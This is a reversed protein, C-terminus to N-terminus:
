QSFRKANGSALNQYAAALLKSAEHCANKNEKLFYKKLGWLACLFFVAMGFIIPHQLVAVTVLGKFFVPLMYTLVGAIHNVWWHFSWAAHLQQAGSEVPPWIWLWGASIVVFLTFELFVGYLWQRRSVWTNIRSQAKEWEERNVTLTQAKYPVSSDVVDSCNPLHGPAYHQAKREIREFVTRHIKVNDGQRLKGECLRQINRPQYRYYVALGDRSDYLRGYVNRNGRIEDRKGDKLILGHSCAREMMWDLTVDALGARGYGGGVNSHSGAFWVQEITTKKAHSLQENWILPEFSLREDDIALAHYANEVNETLEFNHFRHPLFLDSVRDLGMFILNLVWMGISKIKWHQPFGLASVTDWVGIFKIRIPGHMGNQPNPLDTPNGGAKKYQCYANEIGEKLEMYNLNRGDLLGVSAIFGSLARVEAAGRSFGFLFVDDGEEPNYNKALFEYLDCVNQKFGFGVAGSMARWYKNKATGVGDDYFTIQKVSQHHIDVAKYTKYVNTDPTEGGLNGTGDACVIINKKM